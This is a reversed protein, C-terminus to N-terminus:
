EIKEFSLVIWVGSRTSEEISASIVTGESVDSLREDVSSECQSLNIRIRTGADKGHLVELYKSNEQGSQLESKPSNFVTFETDLESM